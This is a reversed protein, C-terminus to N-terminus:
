FIIHKSIHFNLVLPSSEWVSSRGSPNTSKNKNIYYITSLSIFCFVYM